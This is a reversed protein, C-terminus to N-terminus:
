SAAAVRDRGEAKAQYLAKDAANIVDKANFGHNPLAAVGVSVTITLIKGHYRVQLEKVIIRLEEARQRTDQLSAEPLILLFEEGGYRCAIDEGRIHRRLLAGLEQLVIDGAEHGYTDNLIKFYDVDLMMCGLPMNHRQARRAERKLSTEMYRRNYLGTLPDLISEKRLTERLRLNVLSLAYHEAIGTLVIRSSELKQRCEEDSHNHRCLTFDMSLIALIEGSVSIPVCLYSSDLSYGIHASLRGTDPHEIFETKDHDFIWPDDIGFTRIEDPPNGWSAVESLATQEDNMLCLSGSTFPFLQSCTNVVVTYMEEETRCAQLSNSMQNLIELEYTRQQLVQEAHKRETIDHVICVAFSASLREERKADASIPRIQINLYRQLIPDETEHETSQNQAVAEWSRDLFIKLYCDPNACDPHLLDHM